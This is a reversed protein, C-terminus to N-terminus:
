QGVSRYFKQSSNLNTDTFQWLGNTDATNTLLPLWQVPPALNTATQLIYSHNAAGVFQLQFGNGVATFTILPAPASQINSVAESITLSALSSTVSGFNNTVVVFYNGINNSDAAVLNLVNDIQDQLNLPSPPDIQIVPPIAYGSGANNVIIATVVGNSVVADGSAGGGSGGTMKVAPIALYGSGGSTLNAALMFGNIVVPAATANSYQSASMWWQYSPSPTGTATVFFMANSGVKVTQSQPQQTISPIQALFLLAPSSTVSGYSNSAVLYYNGFLNSSVNNLNLTSNTQGILLGSPPDIQVLPADAYGPVANTVIIATVQGNSVVATGSAGSGSGGIFQVQPVTTYGSGNNTVMAAYFFGYATQAIAGAATQLTPNSFYWQYSMPALGVVSASFTANGSLLVPQNQPQSAIAAAFTVTLSTVSSTVSGQASSIIVLYNGANNTNVNNLTILSGQALVKRIRRNNTDAILVNGSLDVTVGSPNYLKASIAPGGDGSYGYVGNGAITTIIKNSEVKRICHNYVDAIFLKGSADVAVGFPNYLCANTALGGDGSYGASGNGAITTIIGNSDVKRVRQNGQDTIFVNGSIDAAVGSPYNLKTSIAPGGDGSYGQTGNGALTTINGNTGVKRIRHNSYDAIFINGSVDVAVSSPLNLSATMAPGGDGSYGQTGNGALTTIIGNTDVKRIRHNSSDSIFVNGSADVAMSHPYNLNANAASGGDGSYGASGNGAITTIIGNTDVKRIRNNSNDAIFINGSVDVAVSSPYSLSANKAMSGDGLSGAAGAITFIIGNTDIKRIRQNSTDAIFLQGYTDIAVCSPQFLNANIAPGGDGTFGGSATGAVTTILGNTAVKRIINGTPIFLNGAKDVLVGLPATLGGASSVVTTIIGNADVKRIVNNNKDAIFLNGASDVAVGSPVQFAANTAPGGDGGYSATGNGAVTTLQGNTAVKRIINGTPIFLNGFADVAVGYPSYIQSSFVVTTIIGSPNVKRIVNNGTDAIFFNGSTDCAIGSPGYLKASTAPGGDGSYGNTGNGAITTIIGNTDVKRIRHNSTDAIFVNGSADVAVGAPNNLLANTGNGGDGFYRLAISTGNGAVTTIIPQLNTNNFQWQYSVANTGAVAVNFTVNAGSSVVQSTPQQTIIPQSMAGLIPLLLILYSLLIRM